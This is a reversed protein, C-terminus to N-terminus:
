SAASRRAKSECGAAANAPGSFMNWFRLGAAQVATSRRRRDHGASEWANSILLVVLVLLAAVFGNTTMESRSTFGARSSLPRGFRDWASPPLLAAWAVICIWPFTGITMTLVLGLHFGIMALPVLTRVWRRGIPLFLLLPGCFELVISGATLAALLRPYALLKLGLPTTYHDGALAYYVASFDSRWSPATKLLATFLYM